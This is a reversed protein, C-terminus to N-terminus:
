AGALRDALVRLAMPNIMMGCHGGVIQVNEHFPHDDGEPLRTAAPEVFRDLRSWIATTPVPPSPQDREAGPSLLRGSPRGYGGLAEGFPTGMTVVRRIRAPAHRAVARAYIGGLSLGVLSVPDSPEIADVLEVLGAEIQPTPGVNTGLGWDEARYGLERLFGLLPESEAGDNTHGPLVIVRHGDGRPGRRVLRDRMIRFARREFTSRADLRFLLGGSM